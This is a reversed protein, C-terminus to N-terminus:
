KKKQKPERRPREDDEQRSSPRVQEESQTFSSSYTLRNPPQTQRTSRRLPQGPTPPKRRKRKIREAAAPPRMDHDSMEDDSDSPIRNAANRPLSADAWPISVDSNTRQRHVPSTPSAPRSAPAVSAEASLQTKRKEPEVKDSQRSSPRSMPQQYYGESDEDKLDDLTPTVNQERTSDQAINTPNSSAQNRAMFSRWLTTNDGTQDPTASVHTRTLGSSSIEPRQHVLSEVTSEDKTPTTTTNQSQRLTSDYMHPSYGSNDGEYHEGDFTMKEDPSLQQRVSSNHSKGIKDESIDTLKEELGEPTKLGIGDDERCPTSTVQKNKTDPLAPSEPFSPEYRVNTPTEKEDRKKEEHRHHRDRRENIAYNDPSPHAHKSAKPPTKLSPLASDPSPLVSRTLGSGPHVLKSDNSRNNTLPSRSRDFDRGIQFEEEGIIEPSGPPFADIGHLGPQGHLNDFAARLRRVQPVEPLTLSTDEEAPVYVLSTSPTQPLHRKIGRRNPDPQDDDDSSSSSSSDQKQPSPNNKLIEDRPKKEEVEHTKRVNLKKPIHELKEDRKRNIHFNEPTTSLNHKRSAQQRSDSSMSSRSSEQHRLENIIDQVALSRVPQVQERISVQRRPTIGDIQLMRPDDKITEQIDFVPQPLGARPPTPQRTAQHSAVPQQRKPVEDPPIYIINVDEEQEAPQVKRTRRTTIFREDINLLPATQQPAQTEQRHAQQPPVKPSDEIMPSAMSVDHVPQNQDENDTSMISNITEDNDHLPRTKVPVYVYEKKKQKTPVPEGAQGFRQPPQTIRGHRTKVSETPIVPLVKRKKSDAMLKVQRLKEMRDKLMNVSEKTNEGDEQGIQNGAVPIESSKEEGKERVDTQQQSQSTDASDQLSSKSSEESFPIHKRPSGDGYKKNLKWRNGDNDSCLPLGQQDSFKLNRKEEEKSPRAIEHQIEAKQEIVTKEPEASGESEQDSSPSSSDPQKRKGDGMVQAIQEPTYKKYKEAREHRRNAEESLRQFMSMTKQNEETIPRPEQIDYSGSDSSSLDSGSLEVTDEKDQHVQVQTVIKEPEQSTPGPTAPRSQESIDLMEEVLSTSPVETNIKVNSPHEPNEYSSDIKIEDERQQQLQLDEISRVRQVIKVEPQPKPVVVLPKDTAQTVLTSTDSVTLMKNTSAAATSEETPKELGIAQVPTTVGEPHTIKEMQVDRLIPESKESSSSFQRIEGPIPVTTTKVIRSPILAPMMEKRRKKVERQTKTRTRNMRRIKDTPEKSKLPLQKLRNPTLYKIQKRPTETIKGGGDTRLTLVPSDESSISGPVVTQVSALSGVFTTEAQAVRHDKNEPKPSPQGKGDFPPTVKIRRTSDRTIPRNDDSGSSSSTETKSESSSSLDLVSTKTDNSMHSITTDPLSLAPLSLLSAPTLRNRLRMGEPVTLFKWDQFDRPVKTPDDTRSSKLESPTMNEGMLFRIKDPLLKLLDSHHYRKCNNGNSQVLPRGGFLPALIFRAQQVEVVEYLNRYFKLSEKHAKRDTLLILDGTEFKNLKAILPKNKEDLEEQRIKDHEQIIKKWREQYHARPEAELEDEMNILPQNNPKLGYHMSFPTTIEDRGGLMKKIHPFMGLTLPRNNIMELVCNYMDFLTKRQFTERVLNMTERILKNMREVKDAKSNYPTITTINLVGKSKLFKRLKKNACLAPANDTVIKLPVPMTTFLGKLKEITTEVTQDKVLFSILLNSYLDVINLAATIKHKGMKIDKSFVMHDMHWVLNPGSPSPVRGIPLAKKIIPRHFKCARCCYVVIKSYSLISGDTPKYSLGFMRALSNLGIHGGMIHQLSLITVAMLDSCVIRLNGPAHFPLQKNKRTVLITDNLLRYKAIIKKKPNEKTKLYVIISNIKEDKRQGEAIFEPTIIAKPSVATLAAIQIRGSKEKINYKKVEQNEKLIRAATELDTLEKAIKETLSDTLGNMEENLIELERALAKLRKSKVAFSSKEIFVIQDHMAELIDATTLILNPTTKWAEPITINERKLDPYRLHRDSFAGKYPPYLRSLSDALPIDAGASHVLSWQFPLSYLRHSIRAMRSSDPNNYCSLLTILSKLDTKIIARPCNFLYYFHCKCGFLLGLAERELSTHHLSETVSFRRSGYRIINRTPKGQPNLNNEDEQYLVSGTGTLSSDCEMFIPKDFDVIHIKEATKVMLKLEEFTKMQTSTLTFVQKDTKGRLAEFLPGVRLHYSNLHQSMYNSVGLLSQLEKRTTPPQLADFYSKRDDPIKLTEGDLVHGLFLVEKRFPEFKSVSVMFNSALLDTLVSEIDALHTELDPSAILLDDIHQICAKRSRPSLAKLIFYSYTGPLTALGDSTSRFSWTQHPFKTSNPLRFACIRRLKESAILSRYAKRMDIKTFYKMGKVRAYTYEIGKVLFSHKNKMRTLGNIVRFDLCLRFKRKEFEVHKNESNHHTLLIPINYPSSIEVILDQALLEEIKSDLVESMKPSLPYPKLFVPKDSTLEIDVIAPQGDVLIHRSDTSYCSFVDAVKDMLTTLKEKYEEPIDLKSVDVHDRWEGRRYHNPIGIPPNKIATVPDYPPIVTTKDEVDRKKQEDTMTNMRKEEQDENEFGPHSNIYTDMEEDSVLGLPDLPIDFESADVATFESVAARAISAVGEYPLRTASVLSNISGNFLEFVEPDKDYKIIEKEEETIEPEEPEGARICSPCLCHKEDTDIIQGEQTRTPFSCRDNPELFAPLKQLTDGITRLCEKARTSSSWITTNPNFDMSIEMDTPIRLQRLESFLSYLMRDRWGLSFADYGMGIPLHLHCNLFIGMKFLFVVAGMIRIVLVPSGATKTRLGAPAPKNSQHIHFRTVQTGTLIESPVKQKSFHVCTPHSEGPGRGIPLFHFGTEKYLDVLFDRTEMSMDILPDVLFFQVYGSKRIEKVTNVMEKIQKNEIGRFLGDVPPIVLVSIDPGDSTEENEKIIFGEKLPVLPARDGTSGIPCSSVLNQSTNTFGYKDALQILVGKESKVIDCFCGSKPSVRPIQDFIIKNERMKTIDIINPNRIHPGPIIQVNALAVPDEMSMPIESTNRVMAHFRNKRMKSVCPIIEIGKTKEGAPTVMLNNRHFGTNTLGELIPIDMEIIKSENPQLEMRCINMATAQDHPMFHAQVSGHEVGLDIFYKGGEWYTAWRHTRILNSGILLDDRDDLVAMPVNHLKYGTKLSINMCIIEVSEEAGVIVGEMLMTRGTRAVPTTKEIEELLQRGIACSTSGSDVLALREIGDPFVVAVHPRDDILQVEAETIIARELKFKRSKVQKSVTGPPTINKVNRAPTQKKEGKTSLLEEQLKTLPPESPPHFWDGLSRKRKDKKKKFKWWSGFLSHSVVSAYCMLGATALDLLFCPFQVLKGILIIIGITMLCFLHIITWENYCSRFAELDVDDSIEKTMKPLLSWPFRKIETNPDHLSGIETQHTPLGSLVPIKSRLFGPNDKEKLLYRTRNDETTMNKSGPNQARVEPPVAPTTFTSESEEFGGEFGRDEEDDEEAAGESDYNVNDLPDQKKIQSSRFKPKRKKDQKSQSEFDKFDQNTKDARSSPLFDFVRVDKFDVTVRDEESSTEDFDILNKEPDPEDEYPDERDFPVQYLSEDTYERPDLGRFM